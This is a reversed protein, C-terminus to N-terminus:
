LTPGATGVRAGTVAVEAVDLKRGGDNVHAERLEDSSQEARRAPLAALEGQVLLLAVLEAVAVLPRFLEAVVFVVHQLSGDPLGPLRRRAREATLRLRVDFV